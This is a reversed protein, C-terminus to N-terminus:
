AEDLGLLLRGEGQEELDQLEFRLLSVLAPDCPQTSCGLQRRAFREGREIFSAQRRRQYTSEV